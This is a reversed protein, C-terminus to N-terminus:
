QDLEGDEIENMILNFMDRIRIENLTRVRMSPTLLMWRVLSQATWVPLWPGLGCSPCLHNRNYEAEPMAVRPALHAFELGCGLKDANPVLQGTDLDFLKLPEYGCKHMHLEGPSLGTM